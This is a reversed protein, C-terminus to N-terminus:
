KIYKNIYYYFILFKSNIFMESFIIKNEELNM